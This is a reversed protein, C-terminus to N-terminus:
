NHVWDFAEPLMEQEIVRNEAMVRELIVLSFIMM